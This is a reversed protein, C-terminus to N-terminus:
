FYINILFYEVIMKIMTKSLVKFTLFIWWINKLELEKIFDFSSSNSVNFIILCIYLFIIMSLCLVM